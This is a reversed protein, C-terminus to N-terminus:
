YLADSQLLFTTSGLVTRLAATERGSSNLSNSSDGALPLCPDRMIITVPQNKEFLYKHNLLAKVILEPRLRIKPSSRKKQLSAMLISMEDLLIHHQKVIIDTKLTSNKAIM